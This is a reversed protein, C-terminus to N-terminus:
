NYYNLPVFKNKLELYFYIENYNSGSMNVIKIDSSTILYDIVFLINPDIKHREFEREEDM